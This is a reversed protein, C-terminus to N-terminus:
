EIILWDLQFLVGASVTIDGLDALKIQRGTLRVEQNVLEVFQADFLEQKGEPFVYKQQADDIVGGLEECLKIRVENFTDQQAFVQKLINKLRFAGSARLPQGSLITLANASAQIDKVTIIIEDPTTAPQAATM